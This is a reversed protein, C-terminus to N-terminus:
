KKLHIRDIKLEGRKIISVIKKTANEINDGTKNNQLKCLVFM